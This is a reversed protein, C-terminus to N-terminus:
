GSADGAADVQVYSTPYSFTITEPGAPVGGSIFYTQASLELVGSGSQGPVHICHVVAGGNLIASGSFRVGRGAYEDRLASGDNVYCAGAVDDFDIVAAGTPPDFGPGAPDQSVMSRQLKKAAGQPIGAATADGNGLSRVSDAGRDAANAVGIAALAVVAFSCFWRPLFARREPANERKSKM